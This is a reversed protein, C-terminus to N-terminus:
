PPFGLILILFLNHKRKDGLWPRIYQADLFIGEKECSAVLFKIQGASLKM